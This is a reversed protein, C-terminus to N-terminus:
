IRSCYDLPLDAYFQFSPVEVALGDVVRDERMLLDNRMFALDIRTGDDDGIKPAARLPQVHAENLEVVDDDLQQLVAVRRLRHAAAVTPRLRPFM